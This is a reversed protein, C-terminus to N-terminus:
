ESFFLYKYKLKTREAKTNSEERCLFAFSRGEVGYLKEAYYNANPSSDICQYDRNVAM